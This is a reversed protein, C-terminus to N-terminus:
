HVLTLETVFHFLLMAQSELVSVVRSGLWGITSHASSHAVKLWIAAPVSDHGIHRRDNENM